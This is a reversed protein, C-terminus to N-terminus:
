LSIVIGTKDDAKKFRTYRICEPDSEELNCLENTYRQLGKTLIENAIYEWYLASQPVIEKPLFLGDTLLILHKLNSIHIKGYELFHLAKHEGNLVGYGGPENSKYRNEKLIDIVSAMLESRKTIGRAIGQKWKEFAREELHAVQQRTLPRVEGNEYVALIMCDGTQMYEVGQEDIKIIALATGWLADKKRLDIHSEIMKNRLLENAESICQCLSSLETLSEFYNKVLNAAIFGGTEDNRSRYPVLSSVGDLVGYLSLSENIIVADENLDGTGKVTISEVKEVWTKGKEKFL